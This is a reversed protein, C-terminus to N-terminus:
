FERGNVWAALRTAAIYKRGQALDVSGKTAVYAMREAQGDTCGKIRVKAHLFEEDERVAADVYEEMATYYDDVLEELTM